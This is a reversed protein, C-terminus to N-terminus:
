TSAARRKMRRFRCIMSPIGIFCLLLILLYHAIRYDHLYSGSGSSGTSYSYFPSPFWASNGWARDHVLHFEPHFAQSGERIGLSVESHSHDCEIVRDGISGQFGERYSLSRIWSMGLLGIAFLGIWFIKWRYFRRPTLPPLASAGRWTLLSIWPLLFLLILFWHAVRFVGDGLLFPGDFWDPDYTIDHHSTEFGFGPHSSGQEYGFCLYGAWHGVCCSGKPTGVTFSDDAWKSIGWSWGLFALALIGLWFSKWRHVPRPLM